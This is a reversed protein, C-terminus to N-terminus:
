IFTFKDGMSLILFNEFCIRLNYKFKIIFKYVYIILLYNVLIRVNRVYNEELEIKFRM